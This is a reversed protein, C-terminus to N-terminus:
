VHDLVSFTKVFEMAKEFDKRPLHIYKSVGFRKKLKSWMFKRTKGVEKKFGDGELDTSNKVINISKLRVAEYLEDIEAPLLRNEDRIEKALGRMEDRINKVETFMMRMAKAGNEQQVITQEMFQYVNENPKTIQKAM